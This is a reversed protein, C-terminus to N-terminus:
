VHARGIESHFFRMIGVFLPVAGKKQEALFLSTETCFAASEVSRSSHFISFFQLGRGSLSFSLKETKIVFCLVGAQLSKGFSIGVVCLDSALALRGARFVIGQGLESTLHSEVILVPMKPAAELMRREISDERQVCLGVWASDRESILDACQSLAPKTAKRALPSIFSAIWFASTRNRM